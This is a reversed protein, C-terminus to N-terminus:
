LDRFLVRKTANKGSGTREKIELEKIKKTLYDIMERIESLNARTFSRTGIRYSQGGCLITEEAKEYLELRKKYQEINM